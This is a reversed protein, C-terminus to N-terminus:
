RGDVLFASRTPRRSLDDEILAHLNALQAACGHIDGIAYVRRGPPLKAPAPSLEIMVNGAILGTATQALPLAGHTCHRPGRRASVGAARRLNRPAILLVRTSRDHLSLRAFTM